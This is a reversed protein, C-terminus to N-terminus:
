EYCSRLLEVCILKENEDRCADLSNRVYNMVETHNHFYVPLEKLVEAMVARNRERSGHELAEKVEVLFATKVEKLYGERQETETEELPAYASGSNLRQVVLLRHYVTALMLEEIQKEMNEKVYLLLPELATVEATLQEMELETGDFLAEARVEEGNAISALIELPRKSQREASLTFYQRTLLVTMLANAVAQLASLYETANRIYETGEELANKREAYEEQTLESFSKAEFLAKWQELAEDGTVQGKPSYLGAACRLMYDFTDVSQNDAKEYVSFANEVHELFKAKTMRVPLCSLMLKIRGNVTAPDETAFIWQLIERAVTDNDMEAAGSPEYVAELRNMVYEYLIFVDTYATLMDMCSIMTDRLEKLERTVKEYIEPDFPHQLTEKLMRYLAQELGSAEADMRIREEAKSEALMSLEMDLNYLSLLGYASAMRNMLEPLNEETARQAKIDAALQRITKEM